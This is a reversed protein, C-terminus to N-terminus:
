SAPGWGAQFGILQLAPAHVQRRPPVGEGRYRDTYSSTETTHKDAFPTLQPAVSGLQARMVTPFMRKDVLM